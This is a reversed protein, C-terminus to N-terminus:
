TGDTVNAAELALDVIDAFSGFLSPKVDVDICRDGSDEFPARSKYRGQFLYSSSRGMEDMTILQLLMYLLDM